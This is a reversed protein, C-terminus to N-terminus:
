RVSGVLDLLTTPDLTEPAVTSLRKQLRRLATELQHSPLPGLVEVVAAVLSRYWALERIFLNNALPTRELVEPEVHLALDLTARQWPAEDLAVLHRERDISTEASGDIACGLVDLHLGLRVHAHPQFRERKVRWRAHGGRSGVARQPGQLPPHGRRM